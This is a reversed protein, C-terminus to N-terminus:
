QLEKIALNVAAQLQGETALSVFDQWSRYGAQQRVREKMDPRILPSFMDFFNQCKEKAWEAVQGESVDKYRARFTCYCVNWVEEQVGATERRILSLMNRIESLGYVDLVEKPTMSVYKGRRFRFQPTREISSFSTELVSLARKTMERIDPHIDFLRVIYNEGEKKIDIRFSNDGSKEEEEKDPMASLVLRQLLQDEDMDQIGFFVLLYDEGEQFGSINM